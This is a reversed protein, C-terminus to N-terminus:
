RADRRKSFLARLSTPASRGRGAGEEDAPAPAVKSSARRWGAAFFAGFAGSRREGPATHRSAAAGGSESAQAAAAWAPCSAARRPAEREHGARHVFFSEQFDPEAHEGRAPETADGAESDCDFERPSQAEDLMEDISKTSMAAALAPRVMAHACVVAALATADSHKRTM